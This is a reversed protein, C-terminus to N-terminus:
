HQPHAEEYNDLPEGMGHLGRQQPPQGQCGSSGAAGPGSDGATLHRVIGPLRHCLFSCGM